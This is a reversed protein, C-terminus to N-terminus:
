RSGLSRTTDSSPAIWELLTACDRSRPDSLYGVLVGRVAFGAKLQSGLVRDRLDGRLVRAVYDEPSMRVSQEHYGWLRGGAVTRRLGLAVCLQRLAAYLSQGVGQGWAVPDVYIDAL